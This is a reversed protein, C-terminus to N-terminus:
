SEVTEESECLALDRLESGIWIGRREMQDIASKVSTLYGERKARILVGLSGTVDLGCLRAARRGAVEDICVRQIGQSVALQIVAAEGRDLMNALIPPIVMVNEAITLWTASRFESAAFRDMGGALVEESVELPVLVQEYLYKLIDLGGTAATLAIIPGTNIV